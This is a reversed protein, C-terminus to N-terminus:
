MYFRGGTANAMAQEGLYTEIGEAAAASDASEQELQLDQNRVDKPSPEVRISQPLAFSNTSSRPYSREDEAQEPAPREATMRLTLVEVDGDLPEDAHM